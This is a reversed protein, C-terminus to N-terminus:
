GSTLTGSGSIFYRFCFAIKMNPLVMTPLNYFKYLFLPNELSDKVDKTIRAKYKYEIPLCNKAHKSFPPNESKGILIHKIKDM